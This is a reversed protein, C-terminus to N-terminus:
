SASDDYDKGYLLINCAQCTYQVFLGIDQHHHSVTATWGQEHPIGVRFTSREEVVKVESRSDACHCCTVSCVQVAASDPPKPVLRRCGEILRTLAALAVQVRGPANHLSHDLGRRIDAECQEIMKEVWVM